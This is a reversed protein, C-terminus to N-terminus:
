VTCCRVARIAALVRPVLGFDRKLSGCVAGLQRVAGQTDTASRAAAVGSGTERVLVALWPRPVAVRIAEAAAALPALDVVEFARTVATLRFWLHVDRARSPTM